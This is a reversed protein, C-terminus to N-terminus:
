RFITSSGQDSADQWHFTQLPGRQDERQLEDERVRDSMRQGAPVGVFFIILSGLNM